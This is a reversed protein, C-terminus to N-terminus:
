PPQVWDREVGRWGAPTRHVPLRCFSRVTYGMAFFLCQYLHVCQNTPDVRMTANCGGTYGHPGCCRPYQTFVHAAGEPPPPPNMAATMIPLAYPALGVTTPVRSGEAGKQERQKSGRASNSSSSSSSSSSSATLPMLLGVRSVAELPASAPQGGIAVGTLELLTSFLDVLEVLANTRRGADPLSGLHM